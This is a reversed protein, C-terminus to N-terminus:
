DRRLDIPKGGARDFLELLRGIKQQAAAEDVPPKGWIVEPGGIRKLWLDGMRWRFELLRLRSQHPHLCGAVRAAGEVLADGWPRGVNVPKPARDALQALPLTDVARPLLIGHRDVARVVPGRDEYVVALVPQRFTLKVQIRRNPSIDVSDVREVWVHRAFAESLRRALDEDLLPVSDPFEGYYRVESLFQERDAGPPTLCDIQKFPFQFRESSQLPGRMARGAWILGGLLAAAGILAAAARVMPRGM